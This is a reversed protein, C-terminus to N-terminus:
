RGSTLPMVALLVSVDPLGMKVARHIPLADDGLQNCANWRLVYTLVYCCSFTVSLIDGNWITIYNTCDVLYTGVARKVIYVCM